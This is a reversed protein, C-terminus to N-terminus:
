AAPPPDNPKTPLVQPGKPTNKETVESTVYADAEKLLFSLWAPADNGNFVAKVLIDFAGMTVVAITAADKVATQWPAGSAYAQLAAYAFSFALVVVPQWRAPINIPLKTDDKLARTLVGVVLVALPLWKHAVIDQLLENM